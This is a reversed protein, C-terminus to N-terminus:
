SLAFYEASSLIQWISPLSLTLDDRTFRTVLVSFALIHWYLKLKGELWGVVNSEEMQDFHADIANEM